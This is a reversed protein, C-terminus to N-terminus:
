WTGSDKLMRLGRKAEEMPLVFSTKATHFCFGCKCNCKRTFHYNVSTPTNPSEVTAPNKSCRNVNITLSLVNAMLTILLTLGSCFVEFIKYFARFFLVHVPVTNMKWNEKVVKFICISDPIRKSYFILLIELKNTEEDFRNLLKLEVFVDPM